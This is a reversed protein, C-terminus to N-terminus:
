KRGSMETARKELAIASDTFTYSDVVSRLIVLALEDPEIALAAESELSLRMSLVPTVAAFSVRARKDAHAAILMSFAETLALKCDDIEDISFGADVGFSATMTRLTAAYRPSLPVIVDVVDGGTAENMAPVSSGRSSRGNTSM